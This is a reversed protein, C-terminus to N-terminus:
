VDFGEIPNNDFGDDESIHKYNDFTFHDEYPLHQLDTRMRILDIQENFLERTAERDQYFNWAIEAASVVSRQSDWAKDFKAEGVGALGPINDTSDGTVVQKWLNYCAEVASVLYREDKVFNYHYGPIQYLDKDITLIVSQEGYRYRASALADDAEFGDIVMSNFHEVLFDRVDYLHKPKAVDKRNGKYPKTVAVDHRFNNSGTLFFIYKGLNIRRYMDKIFNETSMLVDSLDDEEGAAACRYAIIDADVLGISKSVGSHPLKDLKKFKDM